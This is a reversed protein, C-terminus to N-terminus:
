RIKERSAYPPDGDEGEVFIFKGARLTSVARAPVNGYVRLRAIAKAATSYIGDFTGDGPTWVVYVYREAM